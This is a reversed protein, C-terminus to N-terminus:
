SGLDFLGAAQDMCPGSAHMIRVCSTPLYHTDTHQGATAVAGTQVRDDPRDNALADGHVAVLENAETVPPAARQLVVRHRQADLLYAADQGAAARDQARRAGIWELDVTPDLLDLRVEALQPHVREDGDAPLVGKPHRRLQVVEADVDNAHRLGDV